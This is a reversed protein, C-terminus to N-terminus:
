NLVRPDAIAYIRAGQEDVVFVLLIGPAVRGIPEAHIVPVDEFAALLEDERYVDAFSAEGDLVFLLAPRRPETWRQLIAAIKAKIIGKSFYAELSPRDFSPRDFRIQRADM